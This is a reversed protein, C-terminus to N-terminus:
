AARLRASARRTSLPTPPNAGSNFWRESDWEIDDKARRAEYGGYQKGVADIYNGVSMGDRYLNFRKWSKSGPRKQNTDVLLRIIDTLQADSQPSPYSM